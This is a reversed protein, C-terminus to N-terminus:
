YISTILGALLFAGIITARSYLERPPVNLFLHEPYTRGAYFYFDLAAQMVWAFIGAFVALIIAQHEPRAHPTCFRKLTM